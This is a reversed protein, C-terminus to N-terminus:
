ITLTKLAVKDLNIVFKKKKVDNERICFEIQICYDVSFHGLTIKEVTTLM